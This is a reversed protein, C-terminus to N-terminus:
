ATMGCAAALMLIAVAYLMVRTRAFAARALAREPDGLYPKPHPVGGYYNLGGLRVGLAGALAAEPFGANPSPQSSADRWTVRVSRRFHYGPLALAAIWVLGATLRAPAWNALDDMRAPFWGFERYRESRYGVMSDLTNIAKYAAMGVPGALMLYFLPAVIADNLNEAVTEVVARLIEPEELSGTDRGVIRALMSRAGALDGAELRRLVATAEVDLDRIALLMWVWYINAWPLTLLVVGCATAVTSTWFVAGALRLNRIRSRWFPELRAALWGFARVPHPLWRPDGLALDLAAGALIEGWTITL